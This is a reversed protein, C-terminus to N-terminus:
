SAKGLAVLARRSATGFVKSEIEVLLQPSRLGALFVMNPAHTCCPTGIAEARLCEARAELLFSLQEQELSEMM